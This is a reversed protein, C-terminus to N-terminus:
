AVPYVSLQVWGGADPQVPGSVKHAIGDVLLESGERVGPTNVVCYAVTIQAVDVAQGFPDSASRDLIVGFPEGGQYIATANALRAQVANNVRAELAAFPALTM